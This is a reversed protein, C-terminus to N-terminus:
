DVLFPSDCAGLGTAVGGENATALKTRLMHGGQKNIYVNNEDAIIIGFIGLESVLEQPKIIANNEPRVMYSRHIPPYIKDMLVWAVRDQKYKVSELFYKIDLGYKNNCGGERQPKLVFRHPNAIGMEIAANGYENFDLSYHETFIEKIEACLKENNLFKNIVGPKALVQQVKKTGVLHYQITPCKIALSREILLRVEWEKRTHYQGPEYGCRYYVVAVIFNDVILKKSSGLKTAATLQTLNRRIVKINPNQKKIEFEHFCQDCINYPVDEIVFLIVARQDGYMNWAEIMSSCIIELADNEPLNEVKEHCGLETLVYRHLKTSAPGLWGFGSAITNIEVQKWSCYPISINNMDETPCNTDLMLDSRLIGLSIKQASGGEANIIECIKFLERTFSDVKITEELTEKLFNFDQAVKHILLNLKPQIQCANEFEKRPFPSPMLIFPAFQLTNRNFNTKSRMCMGHILAWDKAKEILEELEKESICSNLLLEMNM